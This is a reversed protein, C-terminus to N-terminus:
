KIIRLLKKRKETLSIVSTKNCFKTLKRAKEKNLFIDKNNKDMFNLTKNKNAFNSTNFKYECKTEFIIGKKNEIAYIAIIAIIPIKIYFVVGGFRAYFNIEDATMKFNEVASPKINLIIQGNKAYEIPIKVGFINTNIIVYPTMNSDLIWDYYAKLLYPRLPLM